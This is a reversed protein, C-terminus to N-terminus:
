SQLYNTDKTQKLQKAESVTIGVFESENFSIEDPYYSFLKQVSDDELTVTVVPMPDFFSQPLASISASKIKM